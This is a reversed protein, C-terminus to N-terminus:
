GQLNLNKSRDRLLVIAITLLTLGMRVEADQFANQSLASLLFLFITQLMLHRQSRDTIQAALRALQVFWLLFIALGIVGGDTLVQLFMNHAEYKKNFSELGLRDYYPRRYETNLNVGHGLLPREAVMLSHAHWFVLRDDAYHSNRDVGETSFTQKFKRSVRNNTFSTLAVLGILISIAIRRRRSPLYTIFAWPAVILCALQITRSETIYLFICVAIAFVWSKWQRANSALAYLVLPWFLQATYALSLPHSYFGRPRFEAAVINIGSIKWGWVAQSLAVVVWGSVVLFTVKALKVWQVPATFPRLLAFILPLTIWSLHGLLYTWYDNFPNKPNLATVILLWIILLLAIAALTVEGAVGRWLERRWLRQSVIAYLIILGSIATQLAVGFPLAAILAAFLYTLM